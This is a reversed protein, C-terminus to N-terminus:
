PGEELSLAQASTGKGLVTAKVAGSLDNQRLIVQRCKEGEMLLFPDAGAPAKCGRIVAGDVQTLRLTAASGPACDAALSDIELRKVDDCVVAHRLDAQRTRLEVKRFTLGEVHRCYFGYAPLTGFMTSEPYSDPREPVARAALEKPGGGDFGLTINELVVDKIPHGPLGTISCGIESTNKAAIDRLIVNQFTGM